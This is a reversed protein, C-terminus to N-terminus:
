TLDLLTLMSINTTVIIIVSHIMALKQIKPLGRAIKKWPVPIDSM